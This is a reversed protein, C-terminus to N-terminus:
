PNLVMLNPDRTRAEDVNEDPIDYHIGDSTRVRRHGEPIPPYHEQGDQRPPQTLAKPKAGVAPTKGKESAKGEGAPETPEKTAANVFMGAVKPHSEALDLLTPDLEKLKALAQAVKDTPPVLPASQVKAAHLKQKFQPPLDQPALHQALEDASKTHFADWLDARQNDDISPEGALIPAAHDVFPSPPTSM